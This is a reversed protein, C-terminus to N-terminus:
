LSTLHKCMWLNNRIKMKVLLYSSCGSTNSARTWAPASKSALVLFPSVGNSMQSSGSNLSLIVWSFLSISVFDFSEVEWLNFRDWEEFVLLWDTLLVEMRSFVWIDLLSARSSPLRRRFLWSSCDGDVEFVRSTTPPDRGPLLPVVRVGDDWEYIRVVDDLPEEEEHPSDLAVLEKNLGGWVFPQETDVESSTSVRVFYSSSSSDPVGETWTTTSSSSSSSESSTIMGSGERMELIDRLCDFSALSLPSSLIFLSSLLVVSQMERSTLTSLSASFRWWRGFWEVWLCVEEESAAEQADIGEEDDEFFSLLFRTVIVFPCFLELSRSEWALETEKDESCLFCPSSSTAEDWATPLDDDDDM